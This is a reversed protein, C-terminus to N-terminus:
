KKKRRNKKIHYKRTVTLTISYHRNITKIIVPKGAEIYPIPREEQYRKSPNVKSKRM